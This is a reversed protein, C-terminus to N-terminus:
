ASKSLSEDNNVTDKLTSLTEHLTQEIMSTTKNDVRQLQLLLQQHLFQEFTVPFKEEPTTDSM